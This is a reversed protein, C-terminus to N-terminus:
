KRGALADDVSEDTKPSVPERGAILADVANSASVKRAYALNREIQEGTLGAIEMSVVPDAGPFATTFKLAADVAQAPTRTETSEWMVRVDSPLDEEMVALILVAVDAWAQGFTRQLERCRAVLSAEASRIADASAPQDGHLGLYHPPLGSLAGIQQTITATMNAYASLSSAEFQGFKVAPDEAIFARGNKDSDKFPYVPKGDNDYQTELGTVWRRPRAATESTVMADQMLKNLADTLGLVDLMESRGDVETLRGRNVVPVVPVVGLPNPIKEVTEWGTSVFGDVPVEWTYAEGQVVRGGKLMHISDPLYLAGGAFGDEDVWRKFAATVERTAPDRLVETQLPSEVTILPEGQANSWVVIFSRGYILADLHAQASADRMKNRAWAQSLGAHKDGEVSFGTIELREAVSTVVLKPFNVSMKTLSGSLAEVSEKSMFAAPQEGAYYQDLERLKSFQWDLKDNLMKVTSDITM